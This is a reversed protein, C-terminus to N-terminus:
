PYYIKMFSHYEGNSGLRTANKKLWCENYKHNFVLINCNSNENCRDVCYQLGANKWYGVQEGGGANM